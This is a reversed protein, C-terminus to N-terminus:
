DLKNLVADPGYRKLLAENVAKAAELEDTFSGINHRNGSGGTYALWRKASRSWCVGKFRSTKKLPVPTKTQEGRAAPHEFVAPAPAPARQNWAALAEFLSSRPGTTM